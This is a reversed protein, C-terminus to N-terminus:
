QLRIWGSLAGLSHLNGHDAEGTPHMTAGWTPGQPKKNM